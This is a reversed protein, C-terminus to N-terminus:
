RNDEKLSKKLGTSEFATTRKKIMTESVFVNDMSSTHWLGYTSLIATQTLSLAHETPTGTLQLLVVSM